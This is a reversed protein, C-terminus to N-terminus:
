KLAEIGSGLTERPSFFDLFGTGSMTDKLEESLGVLVIKGTQLTSTQRYLSLLMRIGASSMYSVKTMDLLIKSGREALPLVKEQITPATDADLDGVLEVVAVDELINIEMKSWCYFRGVRFKASELKSWVRLPSMGQFNRPLEQQISISM